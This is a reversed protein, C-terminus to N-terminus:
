FKILGSASAQWGNTRVSPPASGPIPIGFPAKDPGSEEYAWLHEVRASLQIMSTPQYSAALGATWSKKASVFQFTTPDYGNRDRYLFGVVPGISYGNAAYTVGGNIKFLNSNSNFAETSIPPLGFANQIKNAAFHSFSAQAKASWNETFGYGAALQLVVRDGSKYYDVGDLRTTSETSYALSAKLSLQEGRFSLSATGTLVDGPNLKQTPPIGFAPGERDFTGRNTYGVGLSGAWNENIPVNVGITPGINFGEGFVLLMVLDSDGKSNASNKLNSRGTPLNLALSLFPQFGAFGLYNATGSVSTDTTGAYSASAGANSIHSTTFGTRATVDFKFDASPQGKLQIAFPINTQTGRERTVVGTTPFRRTSEWTFLRFETSPTITWSKDGVQQAVSASSAGLGLVVPLVLRVINHHATQQM